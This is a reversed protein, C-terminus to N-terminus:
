LSDNLSNNTTLSLMELQSLEVLYTDYCIGHAGFGEKQHMLGGNLVQGAEETSIGFDFYRPASLPATRYAKSLQEILDTFLLDLAGDERGAANAAIYQVHATQPTLFLVCGGVCQEGKHVTHLTINKPFLRALREIEEASHVPNTRHRLLVESLVQWFEKWGNPSNHRLILGQRIAKNRKRRRLTSFSLPQSLDITASLNRAVLRASARFLCYPTEESPQRHYIYPTPKIELLEFGEKRYTTAIIQWMQAIEQTTADTTTLLTGYTLGGHAKICRSDAHASAPLVGLWRNGVTCILSADIFRDSHYDMFDRRFLFTGERSKDVFHDWDAKDAPSYRRVEIM